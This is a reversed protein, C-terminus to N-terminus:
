VPKITGEGTEKKTETCIWDLKRYRMGLLHNIITYDRHFDMEFWHKLPIELYTVGNKSNLYQQTAQLWFLNLNRTDHWATM